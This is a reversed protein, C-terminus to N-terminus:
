PYTEKTEMPTNEIYHQAAIAATTADGVATTIQRTLQARLDGAAFIGKVSTEMNTDTIVYGYKDHAVHGCFLQTNPIFGIFVFVGNVKLREEKGDREILVSEVQAEGEIAKISANRVVQIKPNERMKELLGAHARFEARRHLLYVKSAYRTLFISEEVAADGGGVVAVVQDQFFAGDCIACYSVGRGALEVEGPVDLHRPEGGATVIIAKGLYEKGSETQVLKKDGHPKVCLVGDMEIKLGLKRVQQEMREALEAGSIREFGPYDEVAETNLLQGGPWKKEILVAKLKARSAYLGATLGAPGGGVIIVDYEEM